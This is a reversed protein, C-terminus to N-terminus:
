IIFKTQYNCPHIKYHTPYSNTIIVAQYENLVSNSKHEKNSVNFTFYTPTQKSITEFLILSKHSRKLNNYLMLSRITEIRDINPQCM